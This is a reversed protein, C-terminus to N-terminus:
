WTFDITFGDAGVNKDAQFAGLGVVFFGGCFVGFFVNEVGKVM